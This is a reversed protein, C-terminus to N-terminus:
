GSMFMLSGYIWLRFGEFLCFIFVRLISVSEYLFVEVFFFEFGFIM